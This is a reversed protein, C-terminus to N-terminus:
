AAPRLNSDQRPRWDRRLAIHIVESGPELSRATWPLGAHQLLAHIGPNGILMEAELLDTGRRQASEIGASLLARGVGHDQWDDAVAVGVEELRQENLTGAPELTLHGIVRGGRTMAVFGAGGRENACAFREATAASIGRCACFFRRRRSEDSLSAYFSSLTPADAPAVARIRFSSAM